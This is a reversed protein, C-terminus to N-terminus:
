LLWARSRPRAGSSRSVITGGREVAGACSGAPAIMMDRADARTSVVPPELCRKDPFEVIMTGKTVPDAIVLHIDGDAELKMKRLRVGALRYVQMEIKIRIPKLPNPANLAACLRSRSRSCRM